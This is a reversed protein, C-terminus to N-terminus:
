IRRPRPRCGAGGRREPLGASGTSWAAAHPLVFVGRRYPRPIDAIAEPRCQGAGASHWIVALRAIYSMTMGPAWARRANARVHVAAAHLLITTWDSNLM